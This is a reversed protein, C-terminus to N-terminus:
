GKSHSKARRAANLAKNQKRIDAASMKGDDSNKASCVKILTLLRNLHWKECSFPINFATMYFYIVETTLVERHSKGNSKDTVTTATMPDSIYDLVRNYEDIPIANLEADSVNKDLCMCRIYDIIEANTEPPKQTFCRKWKAEWMSAAILSHELRLTREKITSFTNTREDYLETEPIKITIM